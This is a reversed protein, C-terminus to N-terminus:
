TTAQAVRARARVVGGERSPGPGQQRGTRGLGQTESLLWRCNALAEHTCRPCGSLQM